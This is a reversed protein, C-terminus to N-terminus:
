VIKSLLWSQEHTLNDTDNRDTMRVRLIDVWERGDVDKITLYTDEFATLAMANNDFDNEDEGLTPIWGDMLTLM